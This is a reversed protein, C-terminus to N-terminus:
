NKDFKNYIENISKLSKQEQIEKLNSNSSNESKHSYQILQAISKSKGFQSLKRNKIQPTNSKVVEDKSKKLEKDKNTIITHNKNIRNHAFFNRLLSQENNNGKLVRSGLSFAFGTKTRIIQSERKSNPKALYDNKFFISDKKNLKAVGDNEVEQNNISLKRLRKLNKLSKISEIM